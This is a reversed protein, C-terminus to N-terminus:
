SAKEEVAKGAAKRKEEEAMSLRVLEAYYREDLMHQLRGEDSEMWEAEEKAEKRVKAIPGKWLKEAIARAEDEDSAVVNATLFKEGDAADVDIEIPDGECDWGSAWQDLMLSVHFIRKSGRPKRQRLAERNKTSM